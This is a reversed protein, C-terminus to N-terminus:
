EETADSEKIAEMRQTDGILEEAPENGATDKAPRRYDGYKKRHRELAVTLDAHKALECGRRRMVQITLTIETETLVSVKERWGNRRTVGVLEGDDDRVDMLMLVYSGTILNDRAEERTLTKGRARADKIAEEIWESHAEVTAEAAAKLLEANESFNERGAPM